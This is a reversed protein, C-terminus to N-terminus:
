QEEGLRTRAALSYVQVTGVSLKLLGRVYYGDAQRLTLGPYLYNSEKM